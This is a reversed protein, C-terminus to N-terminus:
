AVRLGSPMGAAVDSRRDPSEIDAVLSRPM